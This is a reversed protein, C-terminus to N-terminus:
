VFDREDTHTRFNHGATPTSRDPNARMEPNLRLIRKGPRPRDGFQTDECHALGGRLRFRASAFNRSWFSSNSPFFVLFSRTCATQRARGISGEWPATEKSIPKQGIQRSLNRSTSLTWRLHSSRSRSRLERAARTPYNSASKPAGDSQHGCVSANKGCSRCAM